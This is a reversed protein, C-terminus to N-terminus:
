LNLKWHLRDLTQSHIQEIQSVTLQHEEALGERTEQGSYLGLLVDRERFPLSAFAHVFNVVQAPSVREPAEPRRRRKGHFM